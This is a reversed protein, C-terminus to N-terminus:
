VLNILRKLFRKVEVVSKLGYEASTRLSLKGVFVALGRKKVVRFANEDITDDGMYIPLINKKHIGSVIKQIAKGKNWTVPPRMEWFKKGTSIKIERGAIYPRSVKDFIKKLRALDSKKVLRYHLTVSFKKDEVIAGKISKVQKKLIKKIKKAFPKFARAAPHIFNIGPGKIELGQNGAYCIGNIGVLRKVNALRRGSVIGLTINKKCKLKILLRKIGRDLIAKEPSSVIPSLTGDYDLLLLIHRAGKLRNKVTQWENFLHKM